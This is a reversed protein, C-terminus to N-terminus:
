FSSHFSSGTTPEIQSAAEEDLMWRLRGEVPRVMTAPLDKTSKTAGLVRQVIPAKRKGSALFLIERAGNIVPFTLTVRRISQDPDVVPRVLATIEEVVDTGPFISATHGDEGIGLLVLDFRVPRDGFATRLEREYEEAAVAIDIEGKIRHVNQRPIDILLILSREVMGFNSQSDNPPVPREDSFFLHVRSWDVQDKLPDMSLHRYCHRPTEGGALAVFCVWRDDIAANMVRVIEEAASQELDAASRYVTILSRDVM